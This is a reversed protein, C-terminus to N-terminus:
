EKQKSEAVNAVIIELVPRILEGIGVLRGFRLLNSYFTMFFFRGQLLTARTITFNFVILWHQKVCGTIIVDNYQCM